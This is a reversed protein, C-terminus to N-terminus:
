STPLLPEKIGSESDIDRVSAVSKWKTISKDLHKAM